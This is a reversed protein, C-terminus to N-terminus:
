SQAQAGHRTLPRGASRAARAAYLLRSTRDSLRAAIPRNKQQRRNSTQRDHSPHHPRMGCGGGGTEETMSIPTGRDLSLLPPPREDRLRTPPLRLRTSLYFSLPRRRCRRRRSLRDARDARSRRDIPIRHSSTAPRPTISVPKCALPRGINM